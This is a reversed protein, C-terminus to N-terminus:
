VHYVEFGVFGARSVMGAAICIVMGEAGVRSEGDGEEEEGAEADSGVAIQIIGRLQAADLVVQSADLTTGNSSASLYQARFGCTGHAVDLTYNGEAAPTWPGPLCSPLTTAALALCDATLASSPTTTDQISNTTCWAARKALLMHEKTEVEEHTSASSTTPLALALAHHFLGTLLFTTLTTSKM